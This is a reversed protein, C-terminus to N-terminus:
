GAVAAAAAPGEAEVPRIALARRQGQAVYWYPLGVLLAGGVINGV